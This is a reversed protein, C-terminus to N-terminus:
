FEDIDIIEFNVLLTSGQLMNGIISNVRIVGYIYAYTCRCRLYSVPRLWSLYTGKNLANIRFDHQGLSAWDKSELIRCSVERSCVTCVCVCLYFIYCYFVDFWYFVLYCTYYHSYKLESSCCSSCYINYNEKLYIWQYTFM